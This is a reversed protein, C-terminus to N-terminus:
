RLTGGSTSYGVTWGEPSDEMGQISNGSLREVSEDTM